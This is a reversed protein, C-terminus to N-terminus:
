VALARQWCAGCRRARSCCAPCFPSGPCSTSRQTAGAQPPARCRYYAAILMLGLQSIHSAPMPQWCRMKALPHRKMPLGSQAARAQPCLWTVESLQESGECTPDALDTPGQASLGRNFTWRKFPFPLMEMPTEDHSYLQSHSRLGTEGPRVAPPPPEDMTDEETAEPAEQLGGTAFFQNVATELDGSSSDLYFKAADESVGTVAVFRAINGPDAMSCYKAQRCMTTATLM